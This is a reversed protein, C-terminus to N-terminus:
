SKGHYHPLCSRTVGITFHADREDAHSRARSYENIGRDGSTAAHCDRRPTDSRNGCTDSARNTTGRQSDPARDTRSRQRHTAPVATTGRRWLCRPRPRAHEVLGM